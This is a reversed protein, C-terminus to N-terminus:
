PSSAKTPLRQPDTELRTAESFIQWGGNKRGVVLNKELVECYNSARYDLHFRVQWTEEEGPRIQVHSIRGLMWERRSNKEKKDNAWEERDMGDASFNEAYCALYDDMTGGPGATKEWGEKWRQLFARIQEEIDAQGGKMEPTDAPTHPDVHVTIRNGSQEVWYPVSQYLEIPIELTDEAPQVQIPSVRVAADQYCVCALRDPIRASFLRVSLRNSSIRRLDHLVARTTEVTARFHGDRETVFDIRHIWAPETKGGTAALSSPLSKGRHELVIQLGEPSPNATYDALFRPDTEIVLRVGEHTPFYRVVSAWPENVLLRREGSHEEMFVDSLDFVVKAPHPLTFSRFREIPASASVRIAGGDPTDTAQVDTLALKNAIEAPAMEASPAAQGAASGKRKSFRFAVGQPFRRIQPQGGAALRIEVQTTTKEKESQRVTVSELVPNRPVPEPALDGLRADHFYVILRPPDAEEVSSFPLPGRGEIVVDVTEDSGVVVRLREIVSTDAPPPNDDAARGPDVAPGLLFCLWLLSAAITGTITGNKEANTRTRVPEPM